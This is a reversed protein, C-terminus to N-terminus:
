NISEDFAFESQDIESNDFHFTKQSKYNPDYKQLNMKIEEKVKKKQNELYKL